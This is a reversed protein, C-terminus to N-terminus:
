IKEEPPLPIQDITINLSKHGRINGALFVALVRTPLPEKNNFMLHEIAESAKSFPVTEIAMEKAKVYDANIAAGLGNQNHDFEWTIFIKMMKKM